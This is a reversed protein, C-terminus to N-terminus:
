TLSTTTTTATRAAAGSSRAAFIRVITRHYKTRRRARSQAWSCAARASPPSWIGWNCRRSSRTSGNLKEAKAAYSTHAYDADVVPKLEERSIGERVERLKSAALFVTSRDLWIPVLDRGNVHSGRVLWARAPTPEPPDEAADGRWAKFLPLRSRRGPIQSTM